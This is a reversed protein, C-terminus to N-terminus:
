VWAGDEYMLMLRQRVRVQVSALSTLRVLSMLSMLSAIAPRGVSSMGLLFTAWREWM